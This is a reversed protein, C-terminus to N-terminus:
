LAHLVAALTIKSLGKTIHLTTISTECREFMIVLIKEVFRSDDFQTDLLRVNNAISLFIDPYDKITEFEKMKQMEFERILNLV